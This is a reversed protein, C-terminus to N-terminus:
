NPNPNQAANMLAQLREPSLNNPNMGMDNRIQMTRKEEQLREKISEEREQVLNVIESDKLFRGGNTDFKWYADGVAYINVKMNPWLDFCNDVNQDDRHKIPNYAYYHPNSIGNIMNATFGVPVNRGSFGDSYTGSGNREMDCVFMFDSDDDRLYRFVKNNVLKKEIPTISNIFEKSGAFLTDFGLAAISMESFECSNTSLARDPIIRNGIQARSDELFPNRSVTGQAPTPFTFVLQGVEWLSIVTHAKISTNHPVQSTNHYEVWQAPIVLGNTRIEKLINEKATSKINFGFVHSQAESIEMNQKTDRYGGSRTTTAARMASAVRCTEFTVFVETVASKIEEGYEITNIDGYKIVPDEEQSTLGYGISSRAYEGFQHYRSDILLSQTRALELDTQNILPIITNKNYYVTDTEENTFSQSNLPDLLDPVTEGSLIFNNIVEEYPVQCFVMNKELDMNLELELEGCAFRPFYTMGSLPLLDDVQICMELEITTQGNENWLQTGDPANEAEPVYYRNTADTGVVKWAKPQQIYTGCVCKKMNLVDKHVSYMGPRSNKEEKAKCNYVITQEEVAKTQKCSTPQGNSYISYTNIIHSASKFGVFFWCANRHLTTDWNEAKLDTTPSIVKLQIGITAKLSIFGQSIDIVDLSSDTLRFKTTQGNYVPAQTGYCDHTVIQYDNTGSNLGIINNIHNFYEEVDAMPYDYIVDHIRHSTSM